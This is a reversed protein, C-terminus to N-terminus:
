GLASLRRHRQMANLLSTEIHKPLPPVVIALSRPTVRGDDRERARDVAAERIFQSLPQDRQEAAAAVISFEAPRIGVSVIARRGRPARQREATEFDWEDEDQLQTIQDNSM